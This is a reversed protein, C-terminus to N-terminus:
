RIWDEQMHTKHIDLPLNTSKTDMKETWLLLHNWYSFFCRSTSEFHIKKIYNIVDKRTNKHRTGIFFTTHTTHKQSWSTVICYSEQQPPKGNTHRMYFPAHLNGKNQLYNKLMCKLSFHLFMGLIEGGAFHSGINHLPSGYPSGHEVSAVIISGRLTFYTQSHPVCIHLILSSKSSIKKRIVSAVCSCHWPRTSHPPSQLWWKLFGM